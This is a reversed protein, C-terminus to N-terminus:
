GMGQMRELQKRADEAAVDLRQFTRNDSVGPIEQPDVHGLFIPYNQELLTANLDEWNNGGAKSWNGYTGNGYNWRNLEVRGYMGTTESYGSIMFGQYYYPMEKSVIDGVKYKPQVDSNASTQIRVVAKEPTSVVPISSYNQPQITSKEGSICGASILLIVLACVVILIKM